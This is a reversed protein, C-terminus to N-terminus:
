ARAGEGSRSQGNANEPVTLRSGCYKCKVSKGRHSEGVSLIARCKLNPCVLRIVSTDAM